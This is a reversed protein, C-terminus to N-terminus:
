VGRPRHVSLHHAANCCLAHPAHLRPRSGYGDRLQTGMRRYCQLEPLWVVHCLVGPRSYRIVSPTQWAVPSLGHHRLLGRHTPPTTNDDCDGKIFPNQIMPPTGTLCLGVHVLVRESTKLKIPLGKRFVSHGQVSRRMGTSTPDKENSPIRWSNSAM